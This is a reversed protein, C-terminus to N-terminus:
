RSWGSSTTTGTTGTTSTWSNWTMWVRMPQPAVPRVQLKEIDAMVANLRVMRETKVPDGGTRDPHYELALQRHRRKAERVVAALRAKAEDITAACAVQELRDRTIGLEAALELDLASM